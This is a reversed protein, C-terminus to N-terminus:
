EWLLVNPLEDPYVLRLLQYGIGAAGNFFGPNYLGRPLFSAYRWGGNQEAFKVMQLSYQRAEAVWDPQGLQLGASLILEIQGTKGCCPHDPTQASLGLWRRTTNLAAHIDERIAPTDLVPLGGLRALGIGSAGHCWASVYAPQDPNFPAGDQPDRLDPWNAHDPRYIATEYSLANEAASLFHSEGCVQYLRLLAYAIGAAGHSFGALPRQHNIVWASGAPNVPTQGDLLREGCWIARELAASHHTERHLALLGLIGGAAGSIVDWKQDSQIQERTLRDVAQCAVELLGPEELFHGCRTLAYLWGGLGAATGLELDDAGPKFQELIRERLPTLAALSLQRLKQDDVVKIDKVQALHSLASLYLAIGALGDYLDYGCPLIGYRNSPPMLRICLWAASSDEAQIASSVLQDALRFAAQYIPDLEARLNLGIPNVTALGAPPEGTLIHEGRMQHAALSGEALWSQFRLDESSLSQLRLRVHESGSLAFYDALIKSSQKYDCYLSRSSTRGRFYPVDQCYLSLREYKLLDIGPPQEAQRLFVRGLRELSLSYDVGDQLNKPNRAELLLLAYVQTSRFVFRGPLNWFADLPSGDELFLKRQDLLYRYMEQFGALISDAYREPYVQAGDLVPLNNESNLSVSEYILQMADSNLYSWRGRRFPLAQGGAGGLASIDYLKSPDKGAFWVPLLGVRLVSEALRDAAISYAQYHGEVPPNEVKPCLLTESDVMVPYEGAAILNELHCDTGELVYLLALLNGVRQYYRGVADSDLCSDPQVFELWGYEGMDLVQLTRWKLPSHHENLWGLLRFWAAELAVPRPKYVVQLGNEFGLIAVSRGNCHVDSLGPRIEKVQGLEAADTFAAQLRLLDGDLRALMEIQAAIWFLAAQGLLRALVPYSSWLKEWGGSLMYRIFAHYIEYRVQGLPALRLALEGFPQRRRWVQFENYLTEGALRALTQLLGQCLQLQAISTLRSWCPHYKAKSTFISIFPSFLEQFPVPPPYKIFSEQGPPSGLPQEQGQLVSSDLHMFELAEVLLSAWGPLPAAPQLAVPSLMRSIQDEDLNEWSLFRALNDRNGV